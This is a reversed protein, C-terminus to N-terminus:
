HMALERTQLYDNHRAALGVRTKSNQLAESGVSLTYCQGTLGTLLPNRELVLQFFYIILM